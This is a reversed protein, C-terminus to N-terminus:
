QIDVYNRPCEVEYNLKESGERYQIIRFRQDNRKYENECSLSQFEGAETEKLINELWM